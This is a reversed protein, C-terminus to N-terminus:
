KRKFITKPSFIDNIALARFDNIPMALIMRISAIKLDNKFYRAIKFTFHTLIRGHILKTNTPSISLFRYFNATCFFLRFM